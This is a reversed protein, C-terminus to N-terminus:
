ISGLNYGQAQYEMTLRWVRYVPDFTPSGKSICIPNKLNRFSVDTRWNTKIQMYIDRAIMKCVKKGDLKVVYTSTISKGDYVTVDSASFNLNGTSKSYEAEGDSLSAPATFSSDTSVAVAVVPNPPSDIKINTISYPIFDFSVRNTNIDSSVTGIGENTITYTYLQDSKAFIDIQFTVTHWQNTDNYAGLPETSETIKTIGIRPFSTNGLSSVLPQDDYIWNGSRSSNYDTLNKRLFNVFIQEPELKVIM